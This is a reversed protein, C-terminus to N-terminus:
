KAGKKVEFGDNMEYSKKGTNKTKGSKSLESKGRVVAWPQATWQRLIQM